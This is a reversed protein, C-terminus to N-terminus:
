AEASPTQNARGASCRDVTIDRTYAQDASVDPARRAKGEQGGTPLRINPEPDPEHRHPGVCGPPDCRLRNALAGPAPHDHPAWRAEGHDPWLPGPQPVVLSLQSISLRSYVTQSRLTAVRISGAPRLPCPYCACCRCIARRARIPCRNRSQGHHAYFRLRLMFPTLLRARTRIIPM